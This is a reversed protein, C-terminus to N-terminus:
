AARIRAVAINVKDPHIALRPRRLAEEYEALIPDSAYAQIVGGM